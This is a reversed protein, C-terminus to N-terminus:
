HYRKQAVHWIQLVEVAESGVRCNLLYNRHLTRERTSELDGRRGIFLAHHSTRRNAQLGGGTRARSAPQRACHFWAGQHPIRAERVGGKAQAM